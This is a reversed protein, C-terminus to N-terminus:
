RLRLVGGLASVWRAGLATALHHQPSGFAPCILTSLEPAARIERFAAPNEFIDINWVLFRNYHTQFSGFQSQPM